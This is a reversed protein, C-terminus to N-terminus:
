LSIVIKERWKLNLKTVKHTRSSKWINIVHMCHGLLGFPLTLDGPVPTCATTLQWVPAPFKPLAVLARLASGDRRDRSRWKKKLDFVGNYLHRTHELSDLLALKLTLSIVWCNLGGTARGSSRPETESVWMCGIKWGRDPTGSLRIGECLCM